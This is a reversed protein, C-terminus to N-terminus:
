YLSHIDVGDNGLEKIANELYASSPGYHGSNADIHVVTGHAITIEGACAVPQGAFVSSHRLNEHGRQDFVYFNGYRDMVYMLKATPAPQFPQGDSRYVIGDEIVVRIAEREEDSMYHILGHKSISPDVNEGVKSKGMAKVPYKAHAKAPLGPSAFGIEAAQAAPSYGPGLGLAPLALLLTIVVGTKKM